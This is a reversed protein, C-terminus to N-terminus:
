EIELLKERVAYIVAEMRSNLHLKELINRIHNKVTNESIHLSKGIERNTMGQAVLKLVEMERETLRPHYPREEARKTMTAFETLLKSAMSPSLLSQGAQIQRVARAVEDPNIEKLLYGSAGAKIADFLDEEDDSVTLMVVKTTPASEKLQRAAEIGALKPMRVDMLVVDPACEEAVRVAEEGDSAEAVLELDPEGDLVTKLAQRFLAHDDAIMVRIVSDSYPVEDDDHAAKPEDVM